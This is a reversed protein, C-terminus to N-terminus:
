SRFILIKRAGYNWILVAGAVFVKVLLYNFHLVNVGLAMGAETLLLGIVGVAFFIVVDKASKGQGDKREKFVFVLSLIYNFILGATFGVAAAIFLKAKHEPLIRMCLELLATDLIFSAGGVLVYRSFESVFRKQQDSLM